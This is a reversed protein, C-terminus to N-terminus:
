NDAIEQEKFLTLYVNALFRILIVWINLRKSISMQSWKKFALVIILLHCILWM